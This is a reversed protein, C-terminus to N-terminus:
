NYLIAANTKHLKTKTNKYQHTQKAQKANGFKVNQQGHMRTYNQLYFWNPAWNKKARKNRKEIHKPRGQMDSLWGYLIVLVLHRLFIITEGSSPYVTALFTKLFSNFMSLFITCCIPKIQLIERKSKSRQYSHKMVTTRPAKCFGFYVGSNIRYLRVVQENDLHRLAKCCSEAGNLALHFLNGIGHRSCFVQKPYILRFQLTVM